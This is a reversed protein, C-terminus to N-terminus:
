SPESTMEEWDSERVMVWAGDKRPRGTGDTFVVMFAPRRADHLAERAIKQLLELKLTYSMRETAKQEVLFVEGRFDGKAGIWAGSAPVRKLTQREAKDGLKSV